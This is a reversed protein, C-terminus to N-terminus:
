SHWRIDNDSSNVMENWRRIDEAVALLRGKAVPHNIEIWEDRLCGKVGVKGCRLCSLCTVHEIIQNSPLAPQRCFPCVAAPDNLVVVPDPAPDVKRQQRNQWPWSWKM